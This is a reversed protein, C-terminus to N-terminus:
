TEDTDEDTGTDANLFDEVADIAEQEIIQKVVIDKNDRQGLYQKGLWIAMTPNTEAQKWQSRRLSIKGHGRKINFIESFSKKYVRECWRTLTKDDIDFWACIEAETCQLACLKEFENQNIDKRPRAM